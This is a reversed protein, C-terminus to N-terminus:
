HFNSNYEHFQEILIKREALIKETYKGNRPTLSVLKEALAMKKSKVPHLLTLHKSLELVRRAGFYKLDYSDLHNPNKKRKTSVSGTMGTENYIFNKLADILEIYSNHFCLQLAPESKKTNRALCLSGDTDLFASVYSWNM